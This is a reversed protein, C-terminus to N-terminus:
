EVGSRSRGPDETQGFFRPDLLSIAPMRSGV